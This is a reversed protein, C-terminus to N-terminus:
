ESFDPKEMADRIERSIAIFEEMREMGIKDIVRGLNAYLHAQMKEVRARGTDTLRVVTVRADHRAAEKVILEQQVMKKLLVAVRATSVGMFEAINGATVPERAEYVLRLVAGIGAQRMDMAHFLAKPHTAQLAELTARIQESTAM